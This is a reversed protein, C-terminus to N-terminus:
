AAAGARSATVMVRCPANRMVRDVTSGFVGRRRKVLDKRPSGLVIIEAQRREAERVIEKSASRGRVLRGVVRVGYTDGIAVAEDLEANAVREEEPLPTDLPLDLPVELVTLAVVRAGREAALRCAVDLADDSPRGPVIPVVIRRYELALAAGFAPPAKVTERLTARVWRRRYLAYGAFGAVMWGLGVWRTLPNQVIIVAFSIGTALGGFLAFLPWDVGGLRLNPRARYAVAPNPEMRLRVLAAHAVTFSLTAGLSYLTGVFNVDGPLLIAIPAIGAFLILALYPTKFRPHLRRFVEPMQRYTAMSYTIRSAGIVGANTAIFLITAALVGVYIQLIDLLAGEIGLNEVVGLIPDNAYGGDEPPLALLTTLEGDIVLVPLASLAVLPLTLYIAFVAVAVLKYANPVTREPERAEEALNSVTEVGTYALMAVPIAIALNGWTPAVGWHVNDVLIEPSLVLFFGLLVLLVQTAFDIVALTISLKAAEQVGVTNLAVLVIIVVAGGVIDWPNTNLPEWFISLYHPVFFASAAITVIYVLMQAWAAGFSVLEDFAHRAFSSSGGAEPFRVTGEAYTAATAAFVIGALLFVLPTLGLAYVATLGLAYYISSGVNGYATAFLAPTGLVREMQVERRRRRGPVAVLTRGVLSAGSPDNFL